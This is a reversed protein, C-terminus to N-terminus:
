KNDQLFNWREIGIIRIWLRDRQESNIPNGDFGIYNDILSHIVRMGIVINEPCHRLKKNARSVIHMPDLVMVSPFLISDIYQKEDANLLGYIECQNNARVMCIAKVEANKLKDEKQKETTRKSAKIPKRVTKKVVKVSNVMEDKQRERAREISRQQTEKQKGLSLVYKDYKTELQRSNLKKNRNVYAGLPLYGTKNYYAVYENLTM